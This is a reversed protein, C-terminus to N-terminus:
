EKNKPDQDSEENGVMRPTNDSIITDILNNANRASLLEADYSSAIGDLYRICQLCSSLLKPFDAKGDLTADKLANEFFKILQRYNEIHKVDSGTIIKSEEIKYKKLNDLKINM